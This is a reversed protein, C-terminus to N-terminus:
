KRSSRMAPLVKLTDTMAAFERYADTEMGYLAMRGQEDFHVGWGYKKPLASARM